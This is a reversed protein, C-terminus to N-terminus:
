KENKLAFIDSKMFSNYIGAFVVKIQELQLGDTKLRTLQNELALYSIEDM